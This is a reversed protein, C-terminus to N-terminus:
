IMGFLIYLPCLWYSGYWFLFNPVTWQQTGWWSPLDSFMQCCWFITTKLTHIIHFQEAFFCMVDSLASLGLLEFFMWFFPWNQSELVGKKCSFYTFDIALIPWFYTLTEDSGGNGWDGRDRAGRHLVHTPLAPLAVEKSGGSGRPFDHSSSPYIVNQNTTCNWMRSVHHFEDIPLIVDWIHFPFSCINWGGVLM